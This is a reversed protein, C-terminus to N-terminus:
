FSDEDISVNAKPAEKEKEKKKPSAVEKLKDLIGITPEDDVPKKPTVAQAPTPPAFGPNTDFSWDQYIGNYKPNSSVVKMTKKKLRSVQVLTGDKLKVNIVMEGPKLSSMQRVERPVLHCIAVNGKEDQCRFKSSGIKRIVWGQVSNKGNHFQCKIPNSKLFNKGLPGPM